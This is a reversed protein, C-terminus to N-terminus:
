REFRPQALTGAVGLRASLQQGPSKLAIALSGSLNEGQDMAANGRVSLLGANLYLEGLRTSAGERAFTGSLESFASQGGSHAGRLANAFDVGLLAGNQVLFSGKVHPLAFLRDGKQAHMAFAASGALKGNQLLTPALQGAEVLKADVKGTMNWGSGWQLTASGNLIGNYLRASFATIALEERRATGSAALDELRLTSGFPMDFSESRLEVRVTEGGPRLEVRTKRDLSDITIKSWTGDAGVAAVADFRPLKLDKSDLRANSASVPGLAFRGGQAPGFLIWALAQESMVPSELQISEFVMDDGFLSGLQTSAKIQAVKVQGEAGISVDELRWQPQPLLSLYVKGVKVPQQFQASATKEFLARKGDFPTVQVLGVGALLSFVSGLLAFKGWASPPRYTGVPPAIAAQEDRVVPNGRAAERIAQEAERMARAQKARRAEAEELVRRAQEKEAKKIKAEAKRQAMEETKHRAQRAKERAEAEAQQRALEAGERRIQEETERRATEQAEYQAREEADRRAQEELARKARVREDRRARHAVALERRLAEAERKAEALAAEQRAQEEADRQAVQEAERRAAESLRHAEQEALRQAEGGAHKRAQDDADRQAQLEADRRAQQELRYRRQDEREQMAQQEAERRAQQQAELQATEEIKRKAREASKRRATEQAEKLAQQRAARQAEKEQDIRAYDPRSAAGFDLTDDELAQPAFERIYDDNALTVLAAHLKVESLSDVKGSLEELPAIGDVEKLVLRLARPLSRSKGTAEGMGKATKTFITTKDMSDPKRLVHAHACGCMAPYKGQPLTDM